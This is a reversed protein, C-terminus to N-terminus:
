LNIAKIFQNMKYNQDYIIWPMDAKPMRIRGLEISCSIPMAPFIKLPTSYGHKEKIKIMLKRMTKRFMSLQTRSRIIDNNPNQVYVEWISVEKGCVDYIRESTIKDSISLVLAPAYNNNEPEKIIFEFDEDNDNQWIWTKPERHLQYVETSIKDTFLIGLEILLPQPALAFISFHTSKNEKIISLIFKDFSKKLNDSEALWYSENKDELLSNLSIKIPEANTPFWKPFMSSACEFYDIPSSEDGINASYLVVNSHNKPNVGTVNEIRAEHQKKWERLMDASYRIGDKDQDITKHCDHCMLMLNELNNIKDLNRAFLGRGRSGKESFSYIHSKESINVDEKTIPSRYLIKNCGNFECRGASRAWLVREVEKKIHRTVEKAM